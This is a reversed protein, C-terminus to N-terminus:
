KRPRRGSLLLVGGALLTLGSSLLGPDIEPGVTAHAAGGMALFLLGFGVARRASAILRSVAGFTVRNKM